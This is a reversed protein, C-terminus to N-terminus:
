LTGEKIQRAANVFRMFRYTYRAFDDGFVGHWIIKRARKYFGTFCQEHLSLVQDRSLHELRIVPHGFGDRSWDDEDIRGNALM